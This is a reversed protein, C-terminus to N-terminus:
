NWAVRSSDSNKMALDFAKLFVAKEVTKFHAIDEISLADELRKRFSPKIWDPEHFCFWYFMTLEEVGPKEKMLRLGSAAGMIFLLTLSPMFELSDDANEKKAHKFFNAGKKIMKDNWDRQHEDKIIDTDFILGRRYQDQKKSLVHIIEYAAYALTHISIPDAGQFWLRIATRLQARAAALKTVAIKKRLDDM